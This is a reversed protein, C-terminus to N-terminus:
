REGVGSRIEVLSLLAEKYKDKLLKLPKPKRAAKAAFIQRAIM